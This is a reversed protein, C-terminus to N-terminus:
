GARGGRQREQGAEEFWSVATTDLESALCGLQVDDFQGVTAHRSCDHMRTSVPLWLFHYYTSGSVTIVSLASWSYRRGEDPIIIAMPRYLLDGKRAERRFLFLWPTPQSGAVGLWPTPESGAVGLWLTDGQDVSGTGSYLRYLLSFIYVFQKQVTWFCKNVNQVKRYVSYLPVPDTSKPSVKHATAVWIITYLPIKHPVEDVLM